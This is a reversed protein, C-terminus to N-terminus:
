IKSYNLYSYYFISKVQLFKIAASLACKAHEMQMEAPFSFTKNTSFLHYHFKRMVGVKMEFKENDENKGKVLLRCLDQKIDKSAFDALSFLNIQYLITYLFLKNNVKLDKLLSCM